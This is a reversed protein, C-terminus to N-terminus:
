RPKFVATLIDQRVSEEERGEYVLDYGVSDMMTSLSTLDFLWPHENPRYHKWKDLQRPDLCSVDPTTIVITPRAEFIPKLDERPNGFHEISDFMTVVDVGDPRIWAAADKISRAAEVTPHIHDYHVDVGIRKPYYTACYSLFTGPGCGIDIISSEGVEAFQSVLGLRILNLKIGEKTLGQRIYREHYGTKYDEKICPEITHVSGCDKCVIYKGYYSFENETGCAVCTDPSSM